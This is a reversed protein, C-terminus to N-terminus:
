GLMRRTSAGGATNLRTSPPAMSCSALGMRMLNKSRMLPARLERWERKRLMGEGDVEHQEHRPGAGPLPQGRHLSLAAYSTSHAVVAAAPGIFLHHTHQISYMHELIVTTRYPIFHQVLAHGNCGRINSTCGDLAQFVSDSANHRRHEPM